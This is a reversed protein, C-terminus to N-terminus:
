RARPRHPHASITAIPKTSPAFRQYERMLHLFSVLAPDSSFDKIVLINRAGLVSGSVVGSGFETPQVTWNQIGLPGRGANRDDDVSLQGRPVDEPARPGLFPGDRIEPLSLAPRVPAPAKRRRDPL